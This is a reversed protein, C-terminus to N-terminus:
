LCRTEYLTNQRSYRICYKSSSGNFVQPSINIYTIHLSELRM